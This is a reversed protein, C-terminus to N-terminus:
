SYLYEEYARTRSPSRKPAKGLRKLNEYEIREIERKRKPTLKRSKKEKFEKEIGKLLPIQDHSKKLYAKLSKIKKRKERKM